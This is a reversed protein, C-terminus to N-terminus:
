SRKGKKQRYISRIIIIPLLILYSIILIWVFLLMFDKSKNYGIIIGLSLFVMFILYGSVQGIWVKNIKEYLKDIDIRM